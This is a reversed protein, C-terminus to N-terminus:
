KENNEWINATITCSHFETSNPKTKQGGFDTILENECLWNEWSRHSMKDHLFLFFIIEQESTLKVYWTSNKKNIDKLIKVRWNNLMLYVIDQFKIKRRHNSHM